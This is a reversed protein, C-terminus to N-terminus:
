DASATVRIMPADALEPSGDGLCEALAARPARFGMRLFHGGMEEAIMNFLKVRIWGSRAFDTTGADRHSIDGRFGGLVGGRRMTAGVLGPMAASLALVSEDAVIVDLDDVPKADLFITSIRGAVYDAPIKWQGCLIEQLPRGTEAAVWVGSELLPRLALVAAPSLAVNPVSEIM